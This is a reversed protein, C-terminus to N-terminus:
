SLEKKVTDQLEERIRHSRESEVKVEVISANNRKTATNYADKFGDMNDVSTFDLDYIEKTPQFNLGHPSKFYTTFPPDFNEIPLMHFIGCGDNNILVITANIGCRKMALLGNMDHYFAHDGTVLILNDETGSSAGLGSSIIGDIGSAGRNGIVTIDSSSPKGFRDLDRVSMSNSVFITSPDPALSIIKNLISGEFYKSFGDIIKWYKKELERFKELWNTEERVTLESSLSRSFHDPDCILLDTATFEAEPWGGSPDIIFQRCNSRKFYKRLNKSTPSAGFRIVVDPDPLGSSIKEALYSDYGGCVVTKNIHEGFRLTSVPDALIPFNTTQALKSLLNPSPLNQSNPRCISAPGVFILGKNAKSISKSLKQVDKDNLKQNGQITNIFGKKRGTSELPYKEEFFDPIDGEMEVPELPKAFPVNLHVPGAPNKSAEIVSRSISTRLSRIRRPEIQPEPLDRYWRVSDGYIKQQDITQNAGSEYLEPPRDATLVILPVRSWDAEIVAPHFNAVATGSTCVLPTIEGTRKARGLSFFSASREDLHRYVLVDPHKAFAYTLPTSRSGPAISVTSIGSSVLEEVIVNGWFINKNAKRM